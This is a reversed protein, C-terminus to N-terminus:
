NDENYEPRTLKSKNEMVMQIYDGDIVSYRRARNKGLKSAMVNTCENLFLLQLNCILILLQFETLKWFHLVINFQSM